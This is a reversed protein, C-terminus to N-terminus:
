DVSFAVSSSLAVPLVVIVVAGGAPHNSIDITGGVRDCIAKCIALGLGTGGSKRSRSPDGRYFPNFLYPRDEESIGEGRDRVTLAIKADGRALSICVKGRDHSHQLANILINSCLLFADREDLRVTADDAKDTVVEITKLEAL